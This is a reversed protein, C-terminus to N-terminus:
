SLELEAFRSSLAASDAQSDGGTTGGESGDKVEEEGGEELDYQGGVDHMSNRMSTDALKNFATTHAKGEVCQSVMQNWSKLWLLTSELKKAHKITYLTSNPNQNVYMRSTNWSDPRPRKAAVIGQDARSVKQPAAGKSISEHNLLLKQITGSAGALGSLREFAAVVRTAQEFTVSKVGGTPTREDISNSAEGDEMPCDSM